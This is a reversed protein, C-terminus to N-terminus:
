MKKDTNNSENNENKNKNDLWHDAAINGGVFIGSVFGIAILLLKILDINGSGIVCSLLIMLWTELFFTNLFKKSLILKFLKEKM